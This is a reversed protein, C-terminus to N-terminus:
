TVAKGIGNTLNKLDEAQKIMVGRMQEYAKQFGNTNDGPYRRKLFDNIKFWHENPIEGMVKKIMDVTAMNGLSKQIMQDINVEAPANSKFQFSGRRKEWTVLCSKWKKVPVGSSQKWGNSEYHHFFAEPDISTGKEKFYEMVEELTPHISTKAKVVDKDENRNENEMHVVVHADMHDVMHAKKGKLNNVRSNKWDIRKIREDELRKNYYLGKEDKDFKSFIKDDEKGCVGIMDEKSLHGLQHQYCLLSIYKGRQEFSMLATGIMFDAPYFLIAPDKAM